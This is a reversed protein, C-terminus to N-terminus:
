FGAEFEYGLKELAQTSSEHQLELILKDGEAKIQLVVRRMFENPVQSVHEFDYNDKAVVIKFPGALVEELDNLIM